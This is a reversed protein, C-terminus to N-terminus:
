TRDLLGLARVPDIRCLRAYASRREGEADENGLSEILMWLLEGLIERDEWEDLEREDTEALLQRLINAATSAHGFRVCLRCLDLRRLFRGRGSRSATADEMLIEAARAFEGGEAFVCAQAYLEDAAVIPSAPLPAPLFERVVPPPEVPPDVVSKFWRQTETNAVPTDDEFAAGTIGADRDLLARSHALVLAELSTAGTAQAGQWIYRYLDLWQRGSSEMVARIAQDFLARWDGLESARKLGLRTESSPSSGSGSSSETDGYQVALALLYAAPNDPRQELFYNACSRILGLANQWSAPATFNLEKNAEIAPELSIEARPSSALQVPFTATVEEPPPAGPKMRLLQAVVNQVEELASRIRVFSPADTGYKEDCFLYLEDLAILARGLQEKLESYFEASTAQIHLELTEATLAELNAATVGSRVHKYAAYSLKSQTIPLEYIMSAFREMGWHVPASRLSLDGAEIEPYMEAWFRRQLELLLRLVPELAVYGELQICAEGLWVALWLDKSRNLLADAALSAVLSYDARKTQRSWEGVPLSDDDQSRADRIQDILPDYRLDKGALAVADIPQLLEELRLM